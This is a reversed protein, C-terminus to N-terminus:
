LVDTLLPMSFGNTDNCISVNIIHTERVRGDRQILSLVPSQRVSWSLCTHGQPLELRWTRGLLGTYWMFRELCMEGQVEPQTLCLSEVPALFLATKMDWMRWPFPSVFFFIGRLVSSHFCWSAIRHVGPNLSSSWWFTTLVWGALMAEGQFNFCICTGGQKLHGKIRLKLNRNTPTM